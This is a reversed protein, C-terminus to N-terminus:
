FILIPKISTTTDEYFICLLRLYLHQLHGIQAPKIRRFWGSLYSKITQLKIITRIRYYFNHSHSDFRYKSNSSLRPKTPSSKGIDHYM